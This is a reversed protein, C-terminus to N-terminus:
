GGSFTTYRKQIGEFQHQFIKRNEPAESSSLNLVIPGEEKDQMPVLKFDILFQEMGEAVQNKFQSSVRQQTEQQQKELKCLKNWNYMLGEQPVVIKYKNLQMYCEEIPAMKKDIKAALKCVKKLSEMASRLDKLQGINKSLNAKMKEMLDSLKTMDSRGFKKLLDSYKQKWKRADGVLALKVDECNLMVPGVRSKAEIVEIQMEILLFKDMQEKIPRVQETSCHKSM